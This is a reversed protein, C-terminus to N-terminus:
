RQLIVGSPHNSGHIQGHCNLCARNFLWLEDPRAAGTQHRGQIHCSQCLRTVQRSLLSEQNSGHAAHCNLCNERV